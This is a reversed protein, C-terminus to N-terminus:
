VHTTEGQRKIRDVAVMVALTEHLPMQDSELAGACLCRNVESVQYHLGEGIPPMCITSSSIGYLVRDSVTSFRDRLTRIPRSAKARRLLWAKLGRETDTGVPAHHREETGYLRLSLSSPCIIPDHILIQGHTGAIVGRRPGRLGVSCWLTALRGGPYRLLVGTDEDVGTKALVSLSKVTEPAGFIMSALSLLYVGKQLLAGGGLEPSYVRGGPDFAVQSGLDAMFHRPEGIVRQALLERLKAIAPLFRTWMAEMLFVQNRRALAIVDETDRANVTLPKECLVAKGAHLCQEIDGKHLSAPTAIYVAQVEIDDILERYSGHQHPIHFRNGFARAKERSRSGVALLRGGTSHVFDAAFRHAIAGTGLIGWNIPRRALSHAPLTEM